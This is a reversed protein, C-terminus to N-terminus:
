VLGDREMETAVKNLAAELLDEYRRKHQLWRRFLPVTFTFTRAARDFSIAKVVEAVWAIGDEFEREWWPIPDGRADPVRAELSSGFHAQVQAQVARQLMLRSPPLDSEDAALLILRGVGPTDAWYFEFHSHITEQEEVIQEALTAITGPLVYNQRERNLYAMIKSCFLQLFAPHRGTEDLLAVIADSQWEVREGRSPEEALRRAARDSLCDLEIIDLINFWPSGHSKGEKFLFQTSAIIWTLRQENQVVHRLTTDLTQGQPRYIEDYEDLLVVVRAEPRDHFVRELQELVARPADVEQWRRDFGALLEEHRDPVLVACTADLLTRFFRAIHAVDDQFSFAQLDLLIPHYRELSGDWHAPIDFRRRIAAEELAHKLIFLLSTKGMRRPGRLLFNTHGGRYLSSLLKKVENERGFFDVPKQIARGFKYPDGKMEFPAEDLSRVPLRIPVKQRDELGRYTYTFLFGADPTHVARVRYSFRQPIDPLLRAFERISSRELLDFSDDRALVIEVDRAEIRSTNCVEFALEVERQFDVRPNLPVIELRAETKLEHVHRELDEIERDYLWRLVAMEHPPAFVLRRHRRAHALLEELKRQQVDGGREHMQVRHRENRLRRLQGWAREFVPSLSGAQTSQRASLDHVRGLDSPLARADLTPYIEAGSRATALPYLAAEEVEILQRAGLVFADKEDRRSARLFSRLYTAMGHLRDNIDEADYCRYWDVLARYYDSEPGPAAQTQRELARLAIQYANAMLQAQRGQRWAWPNGLGLLLVARRALYSLVELPLAAAVAAGGLGDRALLLLTNALSEGHGAKWLLEGLDGPVPRGGARAAEDGILTELPVLAFGAAGYGAPLSYSALDALAWRPGPRVGRSEEDLVRYIRVGEGRQAFRRFDADPFFAVLDEVDEAALWAEAVLNWAPQWLEPRRGAERACRGALARCAQGLERHRGAQRLVARLEVFNRTGPDLEPSFYRVEELAVIWGEDEPMGPAGMEDDATLWQGGSGEVFGGLDGGPRVAVLHEPMRRDLLAPLALQLIKIVVRQRRIPDATSVKELFAVLYRALNHYTRHLVPRRGLRLLSQDLPYFWPGKTVLDDRIVDLASVGVLLGNYTELDVEGLDDLIITEYAEAALIPAAEANYVFLLDDGSRQSLVAVLDDLPASALADEIRRVLAFNLDPM